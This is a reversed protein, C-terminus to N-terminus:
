RICVSIHRRRSIGDVHAQCAIEAWLKPPLAFCYLDVGELSLPNIAEFPTKPKLGLKGCWPSRWLPHLAFTHVIRMNQSWRCITCVNSAWPNSILHLNSQSESTCLIETVSNQLTYLQQLQSLILGTYPNRQVKEASKELSSYCCCDLLDWLYM